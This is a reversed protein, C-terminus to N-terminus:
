RAGEKALSPYLTVLVISAVDISRDSEGFAVSMVCGELPRHLANVIQSLLFREECM